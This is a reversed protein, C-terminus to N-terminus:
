SVQHIRLKIGKSKATNYSEMFVAHFEALTKKNVLPIAVSLRKEDFDEPRITRELGNPETYRNFQALANIDKTLVGKLVMANPYGNVIDHSKYSVVRRKVKKFKDITKFQAPPEGHIEAGKVLEYRSGSNDKFFNDPIPRIRTLIPVLRSSAGGFVSTRVTNTGGILSDTLSKEAIEMQDKASNYISEQVGIRLELIDFEDISVSVEEVEGSGSVLNSKGGRFTALENLHKGSKAHFHKWAESTDFVPAMLDITKLSSATKYTKGDHSTVAGTADIIPFNGPSKGKIKAGEYIEFMRGACDEVWITTNGEGLAAEVDEASIDAGLYPQEMAPTAIM